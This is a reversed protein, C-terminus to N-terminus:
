ICDDFRHAGCVGQPRCLCRSVATAPDPDTYHVTYSSQDQEADNTLPQRCNVCRFITV